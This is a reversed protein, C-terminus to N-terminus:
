PFKAWTRPFTETQVKFFLFFFFFCFCFCFFSRLRTVLLVPVPLALVPQCGGEVFGTFAGAESSNWSYGPGYPASTKRWGRAHLPPLRCAQAARSPNQLCCNNSRPRPSAPKNNSNSTLYAGAGGCLCVHVSLCALEGWECVCMVHVACSGSEPVTCLCWMQTIQGLLPRAHTHAYPASM